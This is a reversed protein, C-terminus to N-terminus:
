FFAPVLRAAAVWRSLSDSCIKNWKFCVSFSPLSCRAVLCFPDLRFVDISSQIEIAWCFLWDKRLKSVCHFLFVGRIATRTALTCCDPRRIYSRVDAQLDRSSTGLQCTSIHARNHACCAWVFALRGSSGPLLPASKLSVVWFYRDSSATSSVVLRFQCFKLFPFLQWCQVLSYLFESLRGLECRKQNKNM